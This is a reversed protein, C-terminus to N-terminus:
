RRLFVILLLLVIGALYPVVCARLVSSRARAEANPGPSQRQAKYVFEFALIGLTTTLVFIRSTRPWTYAGALIFDTTFFGSWLFVMPALVTRIATAM